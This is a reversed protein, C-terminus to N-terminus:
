KVANIQEKMTKVAVPLQAAIDEWRCEISIRGTYRIQKLAKFYPTFDDGDVGPPTRNACEAIHVHVLKDASDIIDQAPEKERAMHYLDAIVCIHSSGAQRAIEAGEAVTHIFNTESSQLPEIGIRVDYKEAAPAMGKLLTLFQEKAKEEPFGDPIRRAGGSGLVLVKIGLESARRIATESYRIARELDADPGVLKLSGPFFGNASYIPPQISAATERKAAFEEESKEPILFSTVNAELYDLGCTRAAEAWSTGCIGIHEDLQFVYKDKCGTLSLPLLLVTCFLLFFHRM